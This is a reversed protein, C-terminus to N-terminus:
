RLKRLEHVLGVREGLDGVLAAERCKPGTTECTLACAEFDAVDLQPFGVALLDLHETADLFLLGDDHLAGVDEFGLQEAGLDPEM